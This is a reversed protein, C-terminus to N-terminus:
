NFWFWWWWWDDDPLAMSFYSYCLSAPAIYTNPRHFMIELSKTTSVIWWTNRESIDRKLNPGQLHFMIVDQSECTSTDKNEVSKIEMNIKWQIKSSDIFCSKKYRQESCLGDLVKGYHNYEYLETVVDSDFDCHLALVKNIGWWLGGRLQNVATMMTIMVLLAMVYNILKM